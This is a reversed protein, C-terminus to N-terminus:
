INVFLKELKSVFRIWYRLNEFSSQRHVLLLFVSRKFHSTTSTNGGYSIVKTSIQLYSGETKKRVPHQYEKVM